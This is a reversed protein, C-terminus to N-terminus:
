AFPCSKSHHTRRGRTPSPSHHPHDGVPAAELGEIKHIRGWPQLACFWISVCTKCPLPFVVWLIFAKVQILIFTAYSLHRHWCHALELQLCRIKEKLGCGFPRCTWSQFSATVDRSNLVYKRVFGGDFRVESSAHRWNVMYNRNTLTKWIM